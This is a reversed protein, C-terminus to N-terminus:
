ISSIGTISAVLNELTATRETNQSLKTAKEIEVTSIEALGTLLFIPKLIFKLKNHIFLM